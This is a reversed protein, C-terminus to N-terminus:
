LEKPFSRSDLRGLAALLVGAIRDIEEALAHFRAHTSQNDCFRSLRGRKKHM